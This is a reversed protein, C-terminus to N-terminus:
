TVINIDKTSLEGIKLEFEGPEDIWKNNVNVIALDKAYLSGQKLYM